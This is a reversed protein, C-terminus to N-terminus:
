YLFTLIWQLILMHAPLDNVKLGDIGATGRNSMVKEVARSINRFSVVEELLEM